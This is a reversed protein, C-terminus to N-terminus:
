VTPGPASRRFWPSLSVDRGAQEGSNHGPIAAIHRNGQISAPHIVLVSNAYDAHIPAAAAVHLAQYSADLVPITLHAELKSKDAAPGRVSVHLETEGRLGTPASPMYMALFPDVDFKSTDLSAETYYGPSLHVTAKGRLTAGGIGSNLALNALHNAVDLNAEVRSFNTDRLQLQDIQISAKLQPDNM